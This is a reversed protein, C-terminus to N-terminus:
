RSAQLFWKIHVHFSLLVLGFCVQVVCCFCVFVGFWLMSFGSSSPFPQKPFALM